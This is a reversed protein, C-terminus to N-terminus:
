LTVHRKMYKEELSQLKPIFAEDIIFAHSQATTNEAQEESLSRDAIDFLFLDERCAENRVLDILQRAFCAFEAGQNRHLADEIAEVLMREQDHAAMDALSHLFRLVSEADDIDLAQHSEVRKTMRDLVDVSRLGASQDDSYLFLFTPAYILKM